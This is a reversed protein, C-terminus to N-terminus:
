YINSPDGYSKVPTWVSMLVSFRLPLYCTNLNKFFVRFSLQKTLVSRAIAYDDEHALLDAVWTFKVIKTIEEYFLTNEDWTKIDSLAYKPFRLWTLSCVDLVDVTIRMCKLIVDLIKCLLQSSVQYVCKPAARARLFVPWPYRGFIHFKIFTYLNIRAAADM